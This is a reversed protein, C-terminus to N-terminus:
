KEFRTLESCDYKSGLISIITKLATEAESQTSCGKVKIGVRKGSSKIIDAVDAIKDYTTVVFDAGAVVAAKVARQLQEDTLMDAMIDVKLLAENEIEEKILSLESKIKGDEKEALEAINLSLEIEDAGNEIAMACELMVVECYTDSNIMATIGIESDGLAVGVSEVHAPTVCISAYNNGNEILYSVNESVKKESILKSTLMLDYLKTFRDRNM